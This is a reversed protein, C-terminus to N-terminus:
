GLQCLRLEKLLLGQKVSYVFVSGDFGVATDVEPRWGRKYAHVCVVWVCAFVYVHIYGM